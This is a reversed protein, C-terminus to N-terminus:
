FSVGLQNYVAKELMKSAISLISVPRYNGVDSRSSKKFLPRIRAFKMDTPVSNSTIFLNIIFTIHDKIVVAGDKLFKAPIGDPGTTKNSNMSFMRVLMRKSFM